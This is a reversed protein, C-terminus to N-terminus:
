LQPTPQRDESQVIQLGRGDRRLGTAYFTYARGPRVDLDFSQQDRSGNTQLAISIFGPSVPQYDVIDGFITSSALTQQNNLLWDLETSDPIANVLRVLARAADPQPTEGLVALRIGPMEDLAMVTFAPSRSLDTWESAIVVDRQGLALTLAVDYQNAPLNVYESVGGFAVSEPTVSGGLTLGLDPSYPALNVLRVQVSSLRTDPLAASAPPVATCGQQALSGLVLAGVGLLRWDLSTM